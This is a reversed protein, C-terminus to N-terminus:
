SAGRAFSAAAASTRASSFSASSDPVSRGLIRTLRDAAVSSASPVLRTIATTGAPCSVDSSHLVALAQGKGIM